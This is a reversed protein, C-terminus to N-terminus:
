PVLEILAPNLKEQEALHNAQIEIYFREDFISAYEEAVDRATRERGAFM